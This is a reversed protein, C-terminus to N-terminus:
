ERGNERSRLCGKRRRLLPVRRRGVVHRVSEDDTARAGEEEDGFGIDDDPVSDREALCTDGTNSRARRMRAATGLAEV